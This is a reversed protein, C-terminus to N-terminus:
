PKKKEKFKDVDVFLVRSYNAYWVVSIHVGEEVWRRMKKVDKPSLTLEIFSNRPFMIRRKPVFKEPKM